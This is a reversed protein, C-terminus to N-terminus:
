RRWKRLKRGGEEDREEVGEREEEERKTEQRTKRKLQSKESKNKNKKKSSLIEEIEAVDLKIVNKKNEREKPEKKIEEEEERKINAKSNFKSNKEKELKEIKKELLRKEERWSAMDQCYATVIREMEKNIKINKLTKLTQVGSKAGCTPCNIEAFSSFSNEKKEKFYKIMCKLCISHSHCPMLIPIEIIDLCIQCVIEKGVQTDFHNRNKEIISSNLKKLNTAGPSNEEEASITLDSDSVWNDSDDFTDADNFDTTEFFSNGGFVLLTNRISNIALQRNLMMLCATVHHCIVRRGCTCEYNNIIRPCDELAYDFSIQYIDNSFCSNMIFILTLRDDRNNLRFDYSSNINETHHFFYFRALEYILINYNKVIREYSDM